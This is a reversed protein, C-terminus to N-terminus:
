EFWRLGFYVAYFVHIALLGYLVFSIVIHFKLWKGFWLKFNEHTRISYEVDAISEALRVLTIADTTPTTAEPESDKLFLGAALRTLFGSFPKLQNAAAPNSGVDIIARDYATQLEALMAKKAKAEKAFGSMLYRGIFGSVVVLLTMATLSIALPSNYKHGSHVIVLIPGLVGAYIHWALLTRMSVRKTVAKKLKMNRKVVLYALPVLMLLSGTVGLLGGLLSGAFRHSHHLPFGLWALLMLLVLGTVVIKEREKM